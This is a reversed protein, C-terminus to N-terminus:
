EHTVEPNLFRNLKRMSKLSIDKEHRVFKLITFYSLDLEKALQQWTMTGDLMFDILQKRLLEQKLKFEELIEVMYGGITNINNYM